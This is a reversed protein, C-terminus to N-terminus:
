RVLYANYAKINFVDRILTIVEPYQETIIEAYTYVMSHPMEPYAAHLFEHVITENFDKESECDKAYVRMELKDYYCMGKNNHPNHGRKIILDWGQEALEVIDELKLPNM